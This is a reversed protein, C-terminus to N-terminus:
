AKCALKLSNSITPQAKAPQACQLLIRCLFLLFWIVEVSMGFAFQWLTYVAMVTYPTCWILPNLNPFNTIINHKFIKPSKLTDLEAQPVCTVLIEPIHVILFFRRYHLATFLLTIPFGMLINSRPFPQLLILCHYM